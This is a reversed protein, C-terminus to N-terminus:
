FYCPAPTVKESITTYAVTYAKLPQFEKFFLPIIYKKFILTLFEEEAFYIFLYIFLYTLYIFTVGQTWIHRSRYLVTHLFEIDLNM